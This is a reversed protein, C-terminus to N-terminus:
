RAIRKFAVVCNGPEVYDVSDFSLARSMAIGRGHCDHARAPDFVVYRRWDFGAGQDRVTLVIGDAKRELTVQAARERYPPMALRRGIEAHWAGYDVLAGKSEYTIELNGHEVANVMLERIGVLADGPNPYARALFASIVDVDALSRFTFRCSDLHAAAADAKRLSEELGRYAAHHSLANHLVAQLMERKFPKTLYFFVGEALGEAVQQPTAAATQMIVPVRKFGPGARMARIFEIGNLHPMMRDLLIADPALGERLANLAARPEQFSTVRYDTDALFEELMLCNAAVDDVVLIHESM